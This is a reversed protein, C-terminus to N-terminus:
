GSLKNFESHLLVAPLIVSPKKNNNNQSVSHKMISHEETFWCIIQSPTSSEALLALTSM